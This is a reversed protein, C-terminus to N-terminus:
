NTPQTPLIFPRFQRKGWLKDILADFEALLAWADHPARSLRLNCGRFFNKLTVPLTSPASGDHLNVGLLLLMCKVSFVIDAAPSAEECGLIDSTFWDAYAPTDTQVRACDIPQSTQERVAYSWNRLMLGHQEPLIWINGPLVAGHRFGARHIAGLVTLLRRWIWAMDKPDIGSPYAKCVDELSVWRGERAFVAAQHTHMGAQYAFGEILRPFYASFRTLSSEGQLAEVIHIENLALDDNQPDRVLQLTAPRSCPGDEVSCPYINFLGRRAPRDQVTYRHKKTQILISKPALAKSSAMQQALSYWENLQLLLSQALLREETTQYLDPHAIKVLAHYSKKLQLMPEEGPLTPLGFLEEPTHTQALRQAIHELQNNM